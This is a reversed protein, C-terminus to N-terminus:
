GCRVGTVVGTGDVEVNLRSPDLDMTYAGGPAIKRVEHAGATRRALEALEPSYAQGVISRAEAAVCARQAPTVPQGVGFAPALTMLSAVALIRTKSCRLQIRFTEM